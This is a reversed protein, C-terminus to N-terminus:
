GCKPSKTQCVADVLFASFIFLSFLELVLASEALMADRHNGNADRQWTSRASMKDIPECRQKRRKEAKSIKFQSAFLGADDDICNPSPSHKTPLSIWLNCMNAVILARSRLCLNKNCKLHMSFFFSRRPAISRYLSRDSKRQRQPCVVPLYKRHARRGHMWVDFVIANWWADKKKQM